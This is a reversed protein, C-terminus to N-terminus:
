LTSVGYLAADFQRREAFHLALTNIRWLNKSFFMTSACWSIFLWANICWM